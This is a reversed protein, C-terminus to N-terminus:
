HHHTIIQLRDNINSTVAQTTCKPDQMQIIAHTWWSLIRCFMNVARFAGEKPVM